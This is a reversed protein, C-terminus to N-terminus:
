KVRGEKYAAMIEDQMSAYKEPDRMNLRILDARRYVKKGSEGSGGTDVSVTRLMQDRAVKDAKVEVPQQKSGRLEKYTSLLEDAADLDYNDALQFLQTRIKSAKVWSVFDPDQVVKPMDPHKQVLQQQAMARQAQVAYQEAAMVRPNSEVARRIAEQPNEFFDVEKPQEVEPKKVLQSKILEDALKRVEAVEQSHRGVLKEAEQHMKALEAASKGRYKEPLDDEQSKAVEQPEPQTQQEVAEIEGIEETEFDQMEAMM